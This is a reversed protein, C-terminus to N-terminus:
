IPRALTRLIAGLPSPLDNIKAARLDTSAFELARGNIRVAARMFERDARLETCCHRLARATNGRQITGLMFARYAAEEAELAAQKSKREKEVVVAAVEADLEARTRTAWVAAAAYDIAAEDQQVAALVIQRDARLEASAYRLAHGNQKVIHLIFERDGRLDAICYNLAHVDQEVAALAVDRKEWVRERAYRLASGRQKVVATMFVPDARLEKSM